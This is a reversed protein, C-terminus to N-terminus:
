LKTLKLAIQVELSAEPDDIHVELLENIRELRYLITNYHTFLREATARANKDEAFYAELTELYMDRRRNKLIPGLLSDIYIAVEESKPLLYLLRYIHMEDFYLRRKAFHYQQYINKVQLARKYSEQIDSAAHVVPGICLVFAEEENKKYHFYRDIEEEIMAIAQEVKDETDDVIIFVIEEQYCTAMINSKILNDLNNKLLMLDEEQPLYADLDLLFVQISKDRLNIGFTNKQDAEEDFVVDDGRLLSKVFQDMYKEEMKTKVHIHKLEMHLLTSIKEITLYDIETLNYNTELCAIFPIHSLSRYQTLPLGFATFSEERIDIETTGTGVKRELLNALQILEVQELVKSLLPAIIGGELDKVILPNGITQELQSIVEDMKKGVVLSNTFQELRNYITVLHESEQYFIEEMAVRVVDSFVTTPQIAVVPFGLQDARELVEEPITKLFRKVKIGIGAVKKEYLKEIFTVLDKPKDRFPYGTTMIFEHPRVFHDVDPSGVINIRNIISYEKQKGAVLKAGALPEIKLFDQIKLGRQNNAETM